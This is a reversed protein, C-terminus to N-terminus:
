VTKRQIQLHKVLLVIGAAFAALAINGPKVASDILDHFKGSVISLVSVLMGLVGVIMGIVNTVNAGNESIDHLSLVLVGIGGIVGAVAGALGGFLSIVGGIALGVGVLTGILNSADMGYVWADNYNTITLYLGAIISLIPLISGLLAKLRNTSKLLSGM